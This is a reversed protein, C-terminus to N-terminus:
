PLATHRTEPARYSHVLPRASARRLCRGPQCAASIKSRDAYIFCNAARETFCRSEELKSHERLWDRLGEFPAVRESKLVIAMGKRYPCVTFKAFDGKDKDLFDKSYFLHARLDPPYRTQM